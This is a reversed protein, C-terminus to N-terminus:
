GEPYRRAMETWSAQCLEDLVADDLDALRKVYLCSKGTKHKGLRALLAAHEPFGDVFYLVTKGKRPSFGIRCMDGERGSDYRYHYRGFGIISPGWMRPPHGSTRALIECLTAADARQGDDAITAIFASVDSDTEITKNAAM